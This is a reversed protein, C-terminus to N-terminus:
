WTNLPEGVWKNWPMQPVQSPTVMRLPEGGESKLDFTRVINYVSRQSGATKWRSFQLFYLPREHKAVKRRQDKPARQAATKTLVLSMSLPKLLHSFSNKMESQPVSTKASQGSWERSQRLMRVNSMVASLGCPKPSRSTILARKALALHVKQATLIGQM